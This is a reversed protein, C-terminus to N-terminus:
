VMNQKIIYELYKSNSKIYLIFASVKIPHRGSLFDLFAAQQGPRIIHKRSPQSQFCGCQSEAKWIYKVM